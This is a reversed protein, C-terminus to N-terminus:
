WVEKTIMKVIEKMCRSYPKDEAIELSLQKRRIDKLLPNTELVYNDAMSMVVKMREGRKEILAPRNLGIVTETVCARNNGALPLVMTGAFAFFEDPNDLYPNVFPLNEDFTNDKNRNCQPCSLGLNNWEFSKEPYISKPRYHEIHYDAVGSIDSECYMCKKHCEMELSDKIDKQNYKEKVSKPIDKYTTGKNIYDMLDSTWQKSHNVLSTPCGGKNLKIM